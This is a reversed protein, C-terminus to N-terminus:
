PRHEERQIAPQGALRTESGRCLDEIFAAFRDSPRSCAILAALKEAKLSYSETQLIERAALRIGNADTTGSRLVRGAVYRQVGQMNLHQDMNSAIALVPTSAALSQYTTPSGGNCIVLDAREAVLQGPLYDALFVNDPKASASFRGATSAVVVVPESALAEFVRPLVEAAGSSGMTVYILPQSSPITSWWEPLQVNPEWLIPGIHQHNTPANHIPVLEPLDAYLVYDAETYVRRLDYGPPPVHFERCIRNLPRCHMAFALPRVTRFVAEGLRVGTVRLFPLEPMPFTQRAYPSWYANIIAIYPRKALRASVALSLRFDGVIVDPQYEEIVALDERVYERLTAADYLPKGQALADLFQQSSISRIPRQQCTLEPFLSAYRPDWALCIDYQGPDLAGALVAPRAAHALTVTEAVFLVRRRRNPGDEHGSRDPM